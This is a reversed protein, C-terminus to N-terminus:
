PSPPTLVRLNDAWDVGNSLNFDYTGNWFPVLNLAGFLMLPDPLGLSIYSASSEFMLGFGPGGTDGVYGGYRALATLITKKWSPVPLAAIQTGSMALMFHAGMPPLNANACGSGGHTAPYVYSSGYSTAKVGDGFSTGQAVCKLVIFLAHNIHGAALEPERIMGALSGFDAATAGSRLGDGDVRTRGGWAFKLTGGGAPPAQARWLDYEWGDPTVITMHGDGGGAPRADEPVPIKMGELSNVGWSETAHLKYIPDSPLSYYAPHSWDHITGANGAILDAPPGWSLAQQVIAPSNPHVTAGTTTTNFPSSPSYPRWNAGPLIGGGFGEWGSAKPQPEPEPEPEPQPEPEPEPQPEPEQEPEPESEAQESPPALVRLREQWNVGSAMQFVYQGNWTPVKNEKAFEALPDTFGLSTYMTSDELLFGFGGGGTGGVYGGFRALARLVTKKWAPIALADIETNSMALKFRAGLPPLASNNQGCDSGGAAAPYVYSGAGERPDEQVGYGFSTGTGTCKLVIYLAHRIHGAALEQARIAGALNGFKSVLGESELGNGNIRTRGGRSFKLVGGGAPKSQVQWFDYEWGDPTVVTMQADGGGAPKAADPIPIQMGEISSNGGGTADLTFLPDGPQAYYTPRAWDNTAGATDTMNAPLGWQLAAAVMTASRPHVAAGTTTVNFPSKNSYPRWSPGPWNGQGFEEWGSSQSTAPSTLSLSPEVAAASGAILFGALTLAAAFVAARALTRSTALVASERASQLAGGGSAFTHSSSSAKGPRKV